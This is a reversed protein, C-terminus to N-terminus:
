SKNPNKKRNNNRQPQRKLFWVFLCVVSQQVREQHEAGFTFVIGIDTRHGAQLHRM